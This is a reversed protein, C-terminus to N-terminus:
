CLWLKTNGRQGKPVLNRLLPPSSSRVPPSAVRIEGEIKYGNNMSKINIFPLVIRLGGAKGGVLTTEKDNQRQLGCNLDKAKQGGAEKGRKAM